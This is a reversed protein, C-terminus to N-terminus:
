PYYSKVVAEIEQLFPTIDYNEMMCVMREFDLEKKLKELFRTRATTELQLPDVYEKVPKEQLYTQVSLNYNNQRIEDIPVDRSLKNYVFHIDTTSRKKKLLLLVTAIQTDVFHGGDIHVITDIYNLDVLYKRIKGEANGRYLIGPFELVVAIGDDTLHHLIHAIFAYDAKSAPPLAPYGDFMPSHKQEWRISFPPNAIIYKFKRNFAPNSLTDGIMGIFNPIHAQAEKVQEANIDQGYKKVTDGFVSLLGGNGCTPDYIEDIDDPLFSKLYLALEPQTYFVGKSKFDQRISKLNYDTM